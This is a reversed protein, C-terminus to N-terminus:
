SKFCLFFPVDSGIEAGLTLLSNFSLAVSPNLKQLALLVYAADSSGGGLGAESPINKVVKIMIRARVKTSTCWLRAAKTLTDEGEINFDELGKVIIELKDSEYMTISIDDFLSIRAFISQISHFGDSRSKGVGLHLNIKGPAKVNINKIKVM